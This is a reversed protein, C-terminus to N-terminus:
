VAFLQSQIDRFAKFELANGSPDLIFMTAQEGPEGEFRTYPEIVWEVEDAPEHARLKDALAQWADMELVVGSHPVPVGHGDVPNVHQGIKGDPGISPNLHVVFQHGFLDFDIWKEASRGEPCGLVEGYFRRAETIDRVQLAVHFPTLKFTTEQAASSM